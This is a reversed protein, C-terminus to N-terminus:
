LACISHTLGLQEVQQTNKEKTLQLVLKPVFTPLPIQVQRHKYHTQQSCTKYRSPHM